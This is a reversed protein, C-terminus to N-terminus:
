DSLSKETRPNRKLILATAWALPFTGVAVAVAFIPIFIFGIGATSSKSTFTSIFGIVVSGACLVCSIITAVKLTASKKASFLWMLLAAYVSAICLYPLVLVCFQFLLMMAKDSM